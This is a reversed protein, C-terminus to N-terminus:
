GKKTTTRLWTNRRKEEEYAMNRNDIYAKQKDKIKQVEAKWADYGYEGRQDKPCKGHCATFKETCNTCPSVGRIVGPMREGRM